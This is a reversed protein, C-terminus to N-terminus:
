CPVIRDVSKREDITFLRHLKLNQVPDARTGTLVHIAVFIIKRLGEQGQTSVTDITRM